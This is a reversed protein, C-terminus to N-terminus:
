MLPAWTLIYGSLSHYVTVSFQNGNLTSVWSGHGSTFYTGWKTLRGLYQVPQSPKLWRRSRQAAAASTFVVCRCIFGWSTWPSKLQGTFRATNFRESEYHWSYKVPKLKCSMTFSSTVHSNDALLMAEASAGISCVLVCYLRCVVAASTAVVNVTLVSSSRCSKRM